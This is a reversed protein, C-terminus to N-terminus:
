ITRQGQKSHLMHLADFKNCIHRFNAHAAPASSWQGTRTKYGSLHCDVVGHGIGSYSKHCHLPALEEIMVESKRRCKCLTLIIDM